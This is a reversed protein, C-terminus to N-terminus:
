SLREKATGLTNYEVVLDNVALAEDAYGEAVKSISEASVTASKQANEFLSTIIPIAIAAAIGIGPIAAAFGEVASKGIGIKQALGLFGQSKGLGEVLDEIGNFTNAVIISQNALKEFAQASKEGFVAAAGTAIDFGGRIIKATQQSKNVLKELAADDVLVKITATNAM